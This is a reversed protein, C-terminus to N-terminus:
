QSTVFIHSLAWFPVGFKRLFLGKEVDDVMATMYPMAFSPRITYAVDEIEIRRIWILLKQSFYFDKMRYGNTIESPFLESFQEL